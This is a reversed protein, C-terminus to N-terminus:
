SPFQSCVTPDQALSIKSETAGELDWITFDQQWTVQRGRQFSSGGKLLNTQLWCSSIRNYGQRRRGPHPAPATQGDGAQSVPIGGPLFMWLGLFWSLGPGATGCPMHCGQTWLFLDMFGYEHSEGHWRATGQPRAASPCPPLVSRM